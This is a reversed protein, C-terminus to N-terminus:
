VLRHRSNGPGAVYATLEGVAHASSLLMVIPTLAVDAPGLRGNRAPPWLARMTLFPPLLACSGIRLLRAARRTYDLRHGGICRGNHFAMRIAHVLSYPQVHAVRAADRM